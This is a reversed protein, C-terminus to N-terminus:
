TTYPLLDPEGILIARASPNVGLAFSLVLENLHPSLEEIADTFETVERLDPWQNKIYLVYLNKFGYTPLQWLPLPSGSDIDVVEVRLHHSSCGALFHRFIAHNKGPWDNGLIAACLHGVRQEAWISFTRTTSHLAQVIQYGRPGLDRSRHKPDIFLICDAGDKEKLYDQPADIVLAVDSNGFLSRQEPWQLRTHIAENGSTFNMVRVRAPALAIFASLDFRPAPAKRVSDM